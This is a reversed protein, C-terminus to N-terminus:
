KTYKRGLEEVVKKAEELDVRFFERGNNVRYAKLEKHIDSELLYGDFCNFAFEVKFPVPVGTSTSIQNARKDPDSNTYGIKLMGPISPNSLIYVWSNYDEGRNSYIDKKIPTYYTVKQWGEEDENSLSFYRAENHIENDYIIYKEDGEVKDIRELM